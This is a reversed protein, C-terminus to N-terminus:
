LDDGRIEVPYRLTRPLNRHRLMTRLGPDRIAHTSEPGPSSFITSTSAEHARFPRRGRDCRPRTARDGGDAVAAATTPGEARAVTTTSCVRLSTRLLAKSHGPLRSVPLRIHAAGVLWKLEDPNVGAVSVTTWSPSAPRRDTPTTSHYQTPPLRDRRRSSRRRIIEWENHRSRPRAPRRRTRPSSLRPRRADDGISRRRM